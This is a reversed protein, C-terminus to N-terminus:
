KISEENCIFWCKYSDLRPSSLENSHLNKIPVQDLEIHIWGPPKYSNVRPGRLISPGWGWCSDLCSRFSWVMLRCKPIKNIPDPITFRKWKWKNKTTIKKKSCSCTAPHIPRLARFSRVMQKWSIKKATQTLIKLFGNNWKTIKTNTKKSCSYTALQSWRYKNWVDLHCVFM